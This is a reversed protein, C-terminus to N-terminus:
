AGLFQGSFLARRPSRRPTRIGAHSRRPALAGSFSASPEGRASARRFVSMRCFIPLVDRRRERAGERFSEQVHVSANHRRAGRNLEADANLYVLVDSLPFRIAASSM